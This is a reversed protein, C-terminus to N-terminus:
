GKVDKYKVFTYFRERLEMIVPYVMDITIAKILRM